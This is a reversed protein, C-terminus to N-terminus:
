SSFLLNRFRNRLLEEGDISAIEVYTVYKRVGLVECVTELEARSPFPHVWISIQLQKYGLQKLKLNLSNRKSKEVEPIDFFVLRWKEDWKEPTRITLNAFDSNKLREKGKKTLTMGHDYNGPEYRILDRSKMYTLIRRLERQQQREDLEDLLINLPKGLVQVSNPAALAASILGGMAIFKILGDVIAATTDRSTKM